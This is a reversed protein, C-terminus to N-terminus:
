ANEQALDKNVTQLYKLQTPSMELDNQNYCRYQKLHPRKFLTVYTQSIDGLQMAECMTRLNIGGTENLPNYRRDFALIDPYWNWM